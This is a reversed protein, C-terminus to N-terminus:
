RRDAHRVYAIHRSITGPHAVFLPGWAANADHMTKLVGLMRQFINGIPAAGAAAALAAAAVVHAAYIGSQHEM